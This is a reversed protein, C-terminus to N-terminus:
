QSLSGSGAKNTDPDPPLNPWAWNAQRAVGPNILYRRQTRKNGAM